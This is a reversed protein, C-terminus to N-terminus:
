YSIQHIHKAFHIDDNLPQFIAHHAMTTLNESKYICFVNVLLM